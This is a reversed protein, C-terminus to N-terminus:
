DSTLCMVVVGYKPMNLYVKGDGQTWPSYFANGAGDWGGYAADQSCFIQMWQGYIGGTHVGYSHNHIWDTDSFNVVVLMTQANVPDKRLFALIRNRDQAHAWVLDGYRFASFDKRISLADQYMKQMQSGFDDTQYHWNIAHEENDQFNGDQLFEEGQWIM